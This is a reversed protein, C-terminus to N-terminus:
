HDRRSVEKESFVVATKIRHDRNLWSIMGKSSQPAESQSMYKSTVNALPAPQQSEKDKEISATLLNLDEVQNSEVVDLTTSSSVTKTPCHRKDFVELDAVTKTSCTEEQSSKEPIEPVERVDDIPLTIEESGEPPITPHELILSRRRIYDDTIDQHTSDTTKVAEPLSVLVDSVKNSGVSSIATIVPSTRTDVTSTQTWVTSARTGVPSARSSVPLTRSVVPSTRSIVPSTRSVVPLTRSVVPSTRSVVASTRSVVPSTRSVVPSTRSVVPSTRSSVVSSTQSSVISLQTTVPSSPTSAVFAPVDVPVEEDDEIVIPLHKYSGVESSSLRNKRQRSLHIEEVRRIQVDLSQFVNKLEFQKAAISEVRQELANTLFSLGRKGTSQAKEFEADILNQLQAIDM